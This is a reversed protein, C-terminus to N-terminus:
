LRKLKDTRSLKSNRNYIRKADKVANIAKDKQRNREDQKGKFKGLTFIGIIFLIIAGIKKIM